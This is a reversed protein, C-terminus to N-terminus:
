DLNLFKRADPICQKWLEEPLNEGQPDKRLAMKEAAIMRAVDEVAAELQERLTM